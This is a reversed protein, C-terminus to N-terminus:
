WPKPGRGTYPRVLKEAALIEGVNRGDDLVWEACLRFYKDRTLARLLILKGTLLENARRQAKLALAQVGPRPDRLEPADFGLLRCEIPRLIDPWGPVDVTCTDGDRCSKVLCAVPSFTRAAYVPVDDVAPVDARRWFLPGSIARRLSKLWGM